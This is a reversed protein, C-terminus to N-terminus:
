KSAQGKRDCFFYIKTPWGIWRKIIRGLLTYCRMDAEVLELDKLNSAKAINANAVYLCECIYILKEVAVV